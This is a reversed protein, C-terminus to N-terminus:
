FTGSSPSALTSASLFHRPRVQWDRTGLKAIVKALRTAEEPTWKSNLLADRKQRRQYQALCAAPTRGTGLGEAVEDWQVSCEKRMPGTSLGKRRGHDGFSTDLSESNQELM